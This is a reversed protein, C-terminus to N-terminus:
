EIKRFREMITEISQILEDFNKSDGYIMSEQMILYDAEWDKLVAIPPILGIKDPQHNAYDINKVLNFMQRHTIISQYLETDNMAEECHETIALKDLDYLHRSLRDVKIHDISRQFEEHLLFAKELFTRKPLVTNISIPKDAFERDSFHEGVLSKIKRETSPEMLSRAGVEILVRPQLYTIEETLPKYNLELSLPDTNSATFDPITLTIDTIGLEEIKVSIARAFDTSIFSCSEKRLKEVQSKILDGEFGLFKRDIALDIDESFREILNWGKSLSTGGKFVLHEAFETTFVINLALTVWWDKEIATAPLGAREGAEVFIALRDEDNLNNWIKILPSDM